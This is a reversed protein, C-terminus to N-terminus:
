LIFAFPNFTIFFSNIKTLQTFVVCFMTVGWMEIETVSRDITPLSNRRHRHQYFSYRLRHITITSPQMLNCCYILGLSYIVLLLNRYVIMKIMNFRFQIAYTSVHTQPQTNIFSKMHSYRDIHAHTCTRTHTNTEIIDM